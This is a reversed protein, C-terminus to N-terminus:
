IEMVASHNFLKNESHHIYGLQNTLMTTNGIQFRSTNWHSHGYIWCAANCREIFDFLEVAFAGNINSNKYHELYNMFTPVHHTVVVRRNDTAKAFATQLFYLDQKHLANFDTATIIKGKNKILRFDQVNQQM